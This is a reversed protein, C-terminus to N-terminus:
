DRTLAKKARIALLNATVRAVNARQEPTLELMRQGFKHLLEGRSAISKPTIPM